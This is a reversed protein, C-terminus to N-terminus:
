RRTSITQREIDIGERTNQTIDFTRSFIQSNGLSQNWHETNPTSRLFNVPSPLTHSNFFRREFLDQNGRSTNLQRVPREARAGVACSHGETPKQNSYLESLKDILQSYEKFNLGLKRQCRDPDKFYKLARKVSICKNGIFISDM